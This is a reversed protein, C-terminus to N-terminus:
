PHDHDDGGDENPVGAADPDNAVPDDSVQRPVLEKPILPTEHAPGTDSM